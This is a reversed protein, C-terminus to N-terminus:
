RALQQLKGASQSSQDACVSIGTRALRALLDERVKLAQAQNSKQSIELYREGRPLTWAEVVFREGKRRYTEISVPGLREIGAPLPWLGVREQLYRIQAASLFDSLGQRGELLGAMKGADVRRSLSVAGHMSEGHLDYECKGDASPILAPPITECDQRAVKM